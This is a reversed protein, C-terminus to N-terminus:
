FDDDNNNSSLFFTIIQHNKDINHELNILM